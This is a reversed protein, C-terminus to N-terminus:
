RDTVRRAHLTTCLFETLLEQEDRAIWRGVRVLGYGFALMLLPVAIGALGVATHQILHVVAVVFISGSATLVVGFWIAMFVIVLPHLGFRCRIRTQAGDPLFKATVYTQFSNRYGIRIHGRFSDRGLRGIVERSGFLASPGDCADRLRQICQEPSLPSSLDARGARQTLFAALRGQTREDHIAM